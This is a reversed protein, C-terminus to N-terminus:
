KYQVGLIATGVLTLLCRWSASIRHRADFRQKMDAFLQIVNEVSHKARDSMPLPLLVM